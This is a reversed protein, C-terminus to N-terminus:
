VGILETFNPDLRIVSRESRPEALLHQEDCRSDESQLWRAGRRQKTLLQRNPNGNLAVLVAQMGLSSSNTEM